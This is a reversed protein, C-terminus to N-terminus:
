EGWVICMYFDLVAEPHKELNGFLAISAQTIALLGIHHAITIPSAFRTRFCLEFLYYGSHIQCAVFLVDGITVPHRMHGTLPRSLDGHGVLFDMTPYAGIIVLGIQCVLGVHFYTFSRRRREHEPKRLAAWEDRHILGLLCREFLNALLVIGIISFCLIISGHSIYRSLPQNELTAIQPQAM